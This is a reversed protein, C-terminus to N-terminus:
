SKLQCQVHAARCLVILNHTPSDTLSGSNLLQRVMTSQKDVHGDLTRSRKCASASIPATAAASLPVPSSVPYLTAEPVFHQHHVPQISGISNEVPRAASGAQQCWDKLGDFDDCVEIRFRNYCKITDTQRWFIDWKMDLQFAFIGALPTSM